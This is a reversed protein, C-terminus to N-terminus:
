TSSFTEKAIESAIRDTSIYYGLLERVAFYEVPPAYTDNLIKVVTGVLDEVTIEGLATCRWIYSSKKGDLQPYKEEFIDYKSMLNELVSNDEIITPIKRMAKLITNYEEYSSGIKKNLTYKYHFDKVKQYINNDRLDEIVKLILVELAEVANSTSRKYRSITSNYYNAPLYLPHNNFYLVLRTSLTGIEDNLLLIGINYRNIESRGDVYEDVVEVPSVKKVIIYSKEVNKDYYVESVGVADSTDLLSLTRRFFDSNLLSYDVSYDIICKQEEDVLLSIHSFEKRSEIFELLVEEALQLSSSCLRLYLKYSFGLEKFLKELLQTSVEYEGIRGRFIDLSELLNYDRQSKNNVINIEM